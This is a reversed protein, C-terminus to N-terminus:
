IHLHLHLHLSTRPIGQVAIERARLISGTFLRSNTLHVRELCGPWIELYKWGRNRFMQRHFIRNYHSLLILDGAFMLSSQGKTAIVKEANETNNTTSHNVVVEYWAISAFSMHLSGFLGCLTGRRMWCETNVILLTTQSSLIEAWPFVTLQISCHSLPPLKMMTVRRVTVAALTVPNDRNDSTNELKVNNLM